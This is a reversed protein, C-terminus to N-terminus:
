DATQRKHWPARTSVRWGVRPMPDDELIQMVIGEARDAEVKTIRVSTGIAERNTIFLGMGARIGHNAGRDITVLTDKLKRSGSRVVHSSIASIAADVPKALLYRRYEDPVNPFGEVTKSEDGKRLLYVGRGVHRPEGGQNVENCFGILDDAPILYSRVGWSLAVLNSAIGQFGRRSNPHTCSLEIVSNSWAVKGFNRDYLGLCGHWEFVFGADPAILLTTNVGLGDGAYYEGAWPHSRKRSIEWAVERRMANAEREAKRSLKVDLQADPADAIAQGALHGSPATVLLAVAVHLFRQAISM